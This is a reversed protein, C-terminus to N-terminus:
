GCPIDVRVRTGAGPPSELALEGSLAEVRDRLGRLGSGQSEQAGGVGDDDIAVLVRAGPQQMTVTVTTANAHKVVNSLAESVVFYLATEVPAPLRRDPIGMLDVPVPSRRALMELAAGIGEETLVAPHIGHALSRLEDVAGELQRDAEAIVEPAGAVDGRRLREAALRLSMRTALLRQQAGDHIDRELRRREADAAEVIRARSAQLEVLREQLAGQLGRVEAEARKRDTVDRVIALVEDVGCPVVRAEFTQLEGGIDLDYEVIGIPQGDCVEALLGMAREALDPPVVDRLNRGVLDPWDEPWVELYTGIRDLRFMLDPLAELLARYHQERARLEVVVPDSASM